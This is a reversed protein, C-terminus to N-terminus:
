GASSAPDVYLVPQKGGVGGPTDIVYTPVCLGSYQERLQKMLALGKDPDVRFHGTGRAKDLQHIYYPKIRLTVLLRMLDSLAELNDNVNKLLVSQSLMPIGANILDNCARKAEDHFEDAHNTHLVVYTPQHLQLTAIMESNIRKSDVVPIRTHVRIVKVHEIASLRKIIQALQKAKLLLPDGGTLIVEWIENHSEIYAYANELQEPTMAAQGPGIKERRFCFRCYVACVNIPMLLCRDRHRHVVGAVPSYATDGIPDELEDDAIDLEKISPVFQRTVATAAPNDTLIQVMEPSVAISFSEAVQNLAPTEDDSVLGAELLQQNNKIAKTM